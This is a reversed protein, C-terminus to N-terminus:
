VGAWIQGERLVQIIIISDRYIHQGLWQKQFIENHVDYLQGLCSSQGM